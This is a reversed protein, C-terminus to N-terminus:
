ENEPCPRGLKCLRNLWRARLAPVAQMTGEKIFSEQRTTSEQYFTRAEPLRDKREMIAGISELSEVVTEEDM